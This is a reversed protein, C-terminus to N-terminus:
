NRYNVSSWGYGNSAFQQGASSAMGATSLDETSRNWPSNLGRAAVYSAKEQDTKTWWADSFTALVYLTGDLTEPWDQSAPRDSTWGHANTSPRFIVANLKNGGADKLMILVKILYGDNAFNQLDFVTREVSDRTRLGTSQGIMSFVAAFNEIVKRIDAVTFTQTRTNVTTM